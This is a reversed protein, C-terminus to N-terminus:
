QIDHMIKERDAGQVNLIDLLEKLEQDNRPPTSYADILYYNQDKALWNKASRAEAQVENDIRRQRDPDQTWTPQDQYGPIVTAHIQQAYEALMLFTDHRIAAYMDSSVNAMYPVENEAGATLVGRKLPYVLRAALYVNPAPKLIVDWFARRGLWYLKANTSDVLVFGISALNNLNPLVESDSGFTEEKGILEEVGKSDDQAVLKQVEQKLAADNQARSSVVVGAILMAYLLFGLVFDHSKMTTVGFILQQERRPCRRKETESRSSRTM